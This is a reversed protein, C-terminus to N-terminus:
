FLAVQFTLSITKLSAYHKQPNAHIDVSKKAM